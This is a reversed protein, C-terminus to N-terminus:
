ISDESDMNILSYAYSKIEEYKQEIMGDVIVRNERQNAKIVKGNTDIVSYVISM